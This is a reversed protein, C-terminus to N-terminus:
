AYPEKLLKNVAAIVTESTSVKHKISHSSSNVYDVPPYRISLVTLPATLM